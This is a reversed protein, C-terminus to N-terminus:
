SPASPRARERAGDAGGGFQEYALGYKPPSDFPAGAMARLTSADTKAGGTKTVAGKPLQLGLSTLEFKVHKLGVKVKEGREAGGGAASAGGEGSASLSDGVIAGPAREGATRETTGLPVHFAVDSETPVHGNRASLLEEYEDRLLQFERKTPTYEGTRDNRVGGFLLTAVQTGSSPNMFWAEPCYSAAWRRFILDLRSREAEARREAAPLMTAADVKIGNREM